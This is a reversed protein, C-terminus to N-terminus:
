CSGVETDQAPEHEEVEKDSNDYNSRNDQWLDEKFRLDEKLRLVESHWTHHELLQRVILALLSWSVKIVTIM